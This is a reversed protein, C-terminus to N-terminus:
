EMIVKGSYTKGGSVVEILYIGSATDMLSVKQWLLKGEIVQTYILAGSFDYIKIM